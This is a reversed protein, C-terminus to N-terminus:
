NAEGPDKNEESGYQHPYFEIAFALWENLNQPCLLDSTVDKYKRLIYRPVHRTCFTEDM